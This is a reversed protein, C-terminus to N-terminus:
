IEPGMHIHPGPWTTKRVGGGGMDNGWVWLVGWFRALDTIAKGQSAKRIKCLGLRKGGGM